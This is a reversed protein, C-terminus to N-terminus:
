GKKNKSANIIDEMTLGYKSLTNMIDTTDNRGKISNFSKGINQLGTNRDQNAQSLQTHYNDRDKRDALDKGEEGTMVRLDQDNEFEAQQQFLASMQKSFSDYIGERGQNAGQYTALDLARKSNVGRASNRNTRTASLRARELDKLSNDRQGAIYEKSEEIRALGDEGYNEFHNVNPTDGARNRNVDNRGQFAGAVQGFLSTLDGATLGGLVGKASSTGGEESGAEASALTTKGLSPTYTNDGTVQEGQANTYDYEFLDETNIGKGKPNTSYKYKSLAGYTNKGFVGDSGVGLTTQLAKRQELSNIDFDPNHQSYQELLPSFKDEYGKGFITGGGAFKQQGAEQISKYLNMSDIDQTDVIENNSTVAKITKKLLKDSPNDKLLKELAKLSKERKMKRDAMTRGDPGKLRKSYMDTGEPLDVDIGGQEHSPGQAQFVEGNPLQGVEEGEIEVPVNPVSGGMAFKMNGLVPLLKGALKGAGSGGFGGKSIGYQMAANGLGSLINTLPNTESKHKAQALNIDNQHLETFPDEMYNKISTGTAYKKRKMKNKYTKLM